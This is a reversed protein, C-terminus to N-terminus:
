GREGVGSRAGPLVPRDGRETGADAIPHQNPQGAHSDFDGWGATLVRFGLNANILRAMVEMDAVLETDSMQDDTPILPALTRAVDLQDVM